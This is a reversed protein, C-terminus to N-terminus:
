PYVKLLPKIRETRDKDISVTVGKIQMTLDEIFSVTVLDGIVYHLGYACTNTQIVDFDIASQSRMQALAAAGASILEVPLVVTADRADVFKEVNNTNVDYDNGTTVETLRAAANGQGGVLVVTGQKSLNKTYVPDEMNRNELSFIVDATHDTGKYGTYWRWEWAQAATHYLYFDGGAILQLKQLTELLNDYACDWNVVNGEAGDGEVTVTQIAGLRKRGNAVIADATANYKVLTSMITEAKVGRFKTKNALDTTYLVYRWGLMSLMGYCTATFISESGKYAIKPDKFLTDFEKYWAIGAAVDKCLVAVQANNILHVIAPHDGPLEFTLVGAKNVEKTYSLSLYNTVEALPVGAWSKIELKYERM